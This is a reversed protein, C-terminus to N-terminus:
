QSYYNEDVTVPWVGPLNEAYRKELVGQWDQPEKVAIFEERVKEAQPHLRSYKIGFKRM